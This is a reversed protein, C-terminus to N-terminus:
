LTLNVGFSLAQREDWLLKARLPFPMISSLDPEHGTVLKRSAVVCLPIADRIRNQSGAVKEQLLEPDTSTSATGVPYTHGADPTGALEGSLRSFIPEWLIKTSRFM